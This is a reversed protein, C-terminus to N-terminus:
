VTVRFLGVVKGIVKIFQFDAANVDLTYNYVGDLSDNKLIFGGRGFKKFVRRIEIKNDILFVFVNSDTLEQNDTDIIIYDSLKISPAMNENENEVVYINNDAFSDIEFPLSIDTNEFLVKGGAFIIKSLVKCPNHEGVSLREKDLFGEDLGLNLEIKRALKEGINRIPNPGILHNLQNAAIDAAEALERQGGYQELLKRLNLRRIINIEM